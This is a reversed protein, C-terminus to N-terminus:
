WAHYCTVLITECWGRKKNTMRVTNTSDDHEDILSLNVNTAALPTVAADAKATLPVDRLASRVAAITTVAAAHQSDRRRTDVRQEIKGASMM